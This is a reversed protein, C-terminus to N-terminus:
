LCVCVLTKGCKFIIFTMYTESGCQSGNLQLQFERTEPIETIVDDNLTEVFNGISKAVGNSIVCVSSSAGCDVSSVNLPRCLSILYRSLSGNSEHREYEWPLRCLHCFLM